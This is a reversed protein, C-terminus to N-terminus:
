HIIRQCDRCVIAVAMDVPQTPFILLSMCVINNLHPKDCILGGTKGAYYTHM